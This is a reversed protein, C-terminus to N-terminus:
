REINYYLKNTLKLNTSEKILKLCGLDGQNRLYFPYYM